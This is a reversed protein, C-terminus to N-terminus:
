QTYRNWSRAFAKKYADTSFLIARLAQTSLPGLSTLM